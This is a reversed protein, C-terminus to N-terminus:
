KLIHQQEEYMLFHLETFLSNDHPVVILYSSMTAKCYIAIDNFSFLSKDILKIPFALFRTHLTKAHQSVPIYQLLLLNRRASPTWSKSQQMLWM